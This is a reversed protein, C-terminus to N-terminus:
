QIKHHSILLLDKIKQHTTKRDVVKIVFIYKKGLSLQNPNNYFLIMENKGVLSYSDIIQNNESIVINNSMCPKCQMNSPCPPCTYKKIVYGTIKFTSQKDLSVKVEHISQITLETALGHVSYVSILFLISLIKFFM